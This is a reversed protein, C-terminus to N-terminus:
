GALKKACASVVDSDAATGGPMVAHKKALENRATYDLKTTDATEAHATAACFTAQLDVTGTKVQSAATSSLVQLGLMGSLIPGAVLGIVLYVIKPKLSEWTSTTSKMSLAM